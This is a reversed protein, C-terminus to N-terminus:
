ADVVPRSADSLRSRIAARIEDDILEAKLKAVADCASVRIHPDYDGLARKITAVAERTALRPMARVTQAYAMSGRMDPGSAAATGLPIAQRAELDVFRDISSRLAELDE